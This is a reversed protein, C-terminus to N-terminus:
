KRQPFNTQWHFDRLQLIVTWSISVKPYTISFHSELNEELLPDVGMLPKIISVGPLDGLLGSSADSKRHLKVRRCFFLFFYTFNDTFMVQNLGKKFTILMLCSLHTWKGMFLHQPRIAWHLLISTDLTEEKRWTATCTTKVRQM